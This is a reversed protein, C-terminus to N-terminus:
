YLKKLLFKPLLIKRQFTIGQNNKWFLEILGKNASEVEKIKWLTNKNPLDIKTTSAWGSRVLFPTESNEKFLVRVPESDREVKMRYDKLIIDDFTAGYM